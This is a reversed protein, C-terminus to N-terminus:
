PATSDALTTDIADVVAALWGTAPVRLSTLQREGEALLEDGPAGAADLVTGGAVRVVAQMVTDTTADAEDLLDAVASIADTEDGAAIGALALRATIRDLYTAAGELVVAAAARAAPADGLAAHALADVALAYTSQDTRGAHVSALIPLAEAARGSQVLALAVAVVQDSQGLVAPDAGQISVVPAVELALDPDGLHVAVGLLAVDVGNVINPSTASGDRQLLEVGDHPRGSAALARGLLQLAQGSTLTDDVAEFHEVAEQAALAAEATRGSWLRVSALLMRMMGVAWDDGRERSESLVNQAILDAEAYRGQHYRVYALLGFAWGIGGLDGVQTFMAASRGIRSEAEDTRGAMFSIWALNQLAWAEGARDGLERYAELAVMISADAAPLDFTFLHTMGLARRTDAIGKRDGAEEFGALAEELSTLADALRGDKQELDGRVLLVSSSAARDDGAARLAEDVGAFAEDLRRLEGLARASGLLFPVQEATREGSLHVAREHLEHARGWRQARAQRLAAHGLWCRADGRLDDPLGRVGHLDAILEAATAMHNAVVSVTQDTAEDMPGGLEALHAAIGHHRRARDAKTLRQYAVDRIADSRFAWQTGDLLFLDKDVLSDLLSPVDTLRHVEQGMQVLAQVPGRRGWVAADELVRAEAPSLHDLRAAVLGRLTDPLSLHVERPATGAEGVLAVLEELFFPNGGGHDLLEARLAAPVASEALADLLRGSSEVDLPDLHMVLSNCRGLPPQWRDTLGERATGLLVLRERGVRDLLHGVLELVVDDAWHLDSLILVVPHQRCLAEIFTVLSRAAEDRARTPDVDRSPEAYGLLHVLGSAVRVVEAGGPEAGLAHAVTARVEDVAVSLPDDTTLSCAQRLAEAIPWWVNAEGYPVCRGELVRAGVRGTADQAVEEALRSKGVGAEGLLLLAHVRQAAVAEDVAHELLGLEVDRGVLPARAKHPRYGPPLMAEVARWAALPEERGRAQRLGLAEYAIVEATAAHTAEGVVVTGPEAITQLRQAANVVDGMATYDGGARLAGVLVEGTNIGIRLRVETGIAAVEAEVTHQMRLAARVAREADDEHAVPAGFLALVADGIFKDVRGGFAEIDTALREFCRDILGKVEEPDRHESLSTFGVLDAFLVTAVRREDHSRVLLDHGCVSCFRSADAVESGCSSCRM